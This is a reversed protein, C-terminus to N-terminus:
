TGVYAREELFAIIRKKISEEDRLECEWVVLPDWGMAKLKEINAADRTKNRGLKTSWYGHNSKPTKAAKCGIHGHWFCGHVFIVKKRGPFVLDPKGPLHMVHLRFRYGLRHILSRLKTEPKTDRSHVQSMTHKRQAPTLNDMLGGM